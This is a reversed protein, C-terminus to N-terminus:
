GCEKGKKGEGKGPKQSVAAWVRQARPARCQWGLSGAELGPLLEARSKVTAPIVVLAPSDRGHPMIVSSVRRVAKRWQIFSPEKFGSNAPQSM